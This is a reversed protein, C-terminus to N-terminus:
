AELSWNALSLRFQQRDRHKRGHLKVEVGSADFDLVGYNERLGGFVVGRRSVGSSVIELVGSEDYSENNHINGSLVMAGPRKGLLLRLRAFAGPYQEWSEEDFGHFTSSSALVLFQSGEPNAIQQELWRWQAEGLVADRDGKDVEIARRYFRTDCILLKVNGLLHASYVDNGTMTPAFAHVFELRAAERLAPSHDGGGRNDGLFDHDDYLAFLPAGRAALDKRLALFHPENLQRQYLQRLDARLESPESHHNHDLYVNDGLLLLADAQEAQIQAWIPQPDVTQIKSCSCFVVKM